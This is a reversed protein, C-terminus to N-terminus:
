EWLNKLASCDLIKKVLTGQAKMKALTTEVEDVTAVRFCKINDPLSNGTEITDNLVDGEFLKLHSTLSNSHRVLFLSTGYSHGNDCNTLALLAGPILIHSISSTKDGPTFKSVKKIDVDMLAAVIHTIGKMHSDSFHAKALTLAKEVRKEEATITTVGETPKLAMNKRAAETSARIRAFLPDLARAALIAKLEDLSLNSAAKILRERSTRPKTTSTSSTTM